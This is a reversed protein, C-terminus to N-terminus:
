GNDHDVPKSIYGGELLHAPYQLVFDEKVCVRPDFYVIEREAEHLFDDYSPASGLRCRVFGESDGNDLDCTILGKPWGSVEENPDENDKNQSERPKEKPREEPKSNVDVEVDQEVKEDVVM